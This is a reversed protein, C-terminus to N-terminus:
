PNLFFFYVVLKNVMGHPEMSLKSKFKYLWIKKFHRM